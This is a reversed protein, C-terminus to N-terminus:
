LWVGRRRLYRLPDVPYGGRPRVELHLHPGTSNGTSGVRGIVQGRRVRGGYRSISSLHAYYTLSGNTHRVVVRRGYSGAWGARIVYGNGVARVRTGSRAPLDLGTHRGSSWYRGRVGFRTGVRYSRLPKTWHGRGFHTGFMSAMAGPSAQAPAPAAHPQAVAVPASMGVPAALAPAAEVPITLVAAAASAVLVPIRRRRGRSLAPPSQSM